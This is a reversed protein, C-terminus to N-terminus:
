NKVIKINEYTYSGCKGSIELKENKGFLYSKIFLFKKPELYKIINLTDNFERNDIIVIPISDTLEVIGGVTFCGKTDLFRYKFTDIKEVPVDIKVTDHYIHNVTTYEKVWQPKINAATLISDTKKSMYKKYESFTLSLDKNTDQMELFNTSLRDIKKSARYLQRSQFYIIGIMVIVGIAIYKKM